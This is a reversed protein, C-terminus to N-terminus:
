AFAIRERGLESFIGRSKVPVTTPPVQSLKTPDVTHLLCGAMGFHLCHCLALVCGKCTHVPVRVFAVRTVPRVVKGLPLGSSFWLCFSFVGAAHFRVVLFGDSHGGSASFKVGFTCACKNAQLDADNQKSEQHPSFSAPSKPEFSGQGHGHGHRILHINFSRVM